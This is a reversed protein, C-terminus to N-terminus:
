SHPEFARSTSSMQQKAPSLEWAPYPPDFLQGSMDTVTFKAAHHPFVAFYDSIADGDFVLFPPQDDANLITWGTVDRAGRVFVLLYLEDSSLLLNGMVAAEAPSVPLWDFGLAERIGDAGSYPFILYLRDWEFDTLTALDITRGTGVGEAAAGIAPQLGSRQNDPSRFALVVLIALAGVFLVLLSPRWRSPYARETEAARTDTTV